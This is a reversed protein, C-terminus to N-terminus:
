LVFSIIFAESDRENITKRLAGEATDAAYTLTLLLGEMELKIHGKGPLPLQPVLVFQHTRLLSNHVVSQYKRHPQTRLLRLLGQETGFSSNHTQSM